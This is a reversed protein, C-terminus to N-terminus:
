DNPTEDVYPLDEVEDEEDEGTLYGGAGGAAAGIAAGEWARGSQSGILGGAAAGVAAGAAAREERTDIDDVADSVNECGALAAILGLPLIKFPTKM